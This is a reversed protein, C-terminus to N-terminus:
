FIKQYHLGTKGVLQKRKAQIFFELGFDYSPKFDKNTLWNTVTDNEPELPPSLNRIFIPAASLEIAAEFLGPKKDKTNRIKKAKNEKDKKSRLIQNQEEKESFSFSQKKNSRREEQRFRKEAQKREKEKRKVLEEQKKIQQKQKQEAQKKQREEEKIRENEINEEDFLTTPSLSPKVLVM